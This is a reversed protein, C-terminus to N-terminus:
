IAWWQDRIQYQLNIIITNDSIVANIAELHVHIGLPARVLWQQALKAWAEFCILFESTNLKQADGFEEFM